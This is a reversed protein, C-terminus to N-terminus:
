EGQAPKEESSIKLDGLAFIGKFIGMYVTGDRAIAPSGWNSDFPQGAGVFQKYVPKGTAFDLALFYWANEGDAQQEFSYYYLLGNASLKNVM